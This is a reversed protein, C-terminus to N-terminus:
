TVRVPLFLILVVHSREQQKTCLPFLSTLRAVVVNRVTRNQFIKGGRRTVELFKLGRWRQTGHPHEDLSSDKCFL